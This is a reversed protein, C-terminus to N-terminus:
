ANQKKKLGWFMGGGREVRGGDFFFALQLLIDGMLLFYIGLTLHTPPPQLPFDALETDGAM